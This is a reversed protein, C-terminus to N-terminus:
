PIMEMLVNRISIDASVKKEYPRKELTVISTVIMGKPAYFESSLDQWVKIKQMDYKGTDVNRVWVDNQYLECKFFSSGDSISNIRMQATLRYKGGPNLKIPKSRIISWSEAEGTGTICTGSTTENSDPITPTLSVSGQQTWSLPTSLDYINPLTVTPISNSPSCHPLKLALQQIRGFDRSISCLCSFWRQQDSLYKLAVATNTVLRSLSATIDEVIAQYPARRPLLLVESRGQWYNRRYFWSKTLRRKDVLHRVSANPMYYAPKNGESLKKYIDSEECSLLSSKIRGIDTRFSGIDLLTKRCFAMNTGYFISPYDIFHPQTGYNLITLYPLIDKTIWIPQPCEWIPDIAGGVSAPRPQINEFAEVIRELWEYSAIADDDIFAVYRGRAENIGRNRAHSLGPTKEFFYKFHENNIFQECVSRTGDTSANDVVIVEYQEQAFSQQLLSEIANPLLDCRNHTCIIASIEIKM